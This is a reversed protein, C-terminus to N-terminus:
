KAGDWIIGANAVAPMLTLAAAIAVIIWKRM